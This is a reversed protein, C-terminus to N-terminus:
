LKGNYLSKANRGMTSNMARSREQMTTLTELLENERGAFQEIMDDVHDLEEPIVEEVLAAIEARVEEPSRKPCPNSNRSSRLSSQNAESYQYDRGSGEEDSDDEHVMLEGYSGDSSPVIPNGLPFSNSAGNADAEFTAAALIVGDWDGQEILKNLQDVKESDIKNRWNQSYSSSMGSRATMTSKSVESKSQTDQINALAAAAAGVMAWDGAMIACELEEFKEEATVRQGKLTSQALPSNPPISVMQQGLTPIRRPPDPLLEDDSVSGISSTYAESWGAESEHSINGISRSEPPILLGHPVVHESGEIEIRPQVDIKDKERQPSTIYPVAVALLSVPDDEVNETLDEEEEEEPRKEEDVLQQGLNSQTPKTQADDDAVTTAVTSVEGDSILLKKQNNAMIPEGVDGDNDSDYEDFPLAAEPDNLPKQSAKERLQRAAEKKQRIKQEYKRQFSLVYWILIFLLVSGTSIGLIASGSLGRSTDGDDTASNTPANTPNETPPPGGQSEQGSAIEVPADPNVEVLAVALEGELIARDIAALFLGYLQLPDSNESSSLDLVISAMVEQCLDTTPNGLDYPCPGRMFKGGMLQPTSTFGVNFVQVIETPVNVVIEELFRQFQHWPRDHYKLVKEQLALQRWNRKGQEGSPTSTKAAVDNWNDAVSQAVVDMAAILDSEYSSYPIDQLRGNPVVISYSTRVLVNSPDLFPTPPLTITPQTTTSAPSESPIMTTNLTPINSPTVTMPPETEPISPVPTPAQSPIMSPPESSIEHETPGDTATTMEISRATLECVLLFYNEQELTPIEDPATGNSNLHANDGLCCGNNDDGSDGSQTRCLCALTFFNSQLTVPLEVFSSVNSLFEEPGELQVFTVYEESDVKRDGNADSVYLNESCSSQSHGSQFILSWLLLYFTEASIRRRLKRLIRSTSTSTSTTRGHQNTTTCLMRRRCFKTTM